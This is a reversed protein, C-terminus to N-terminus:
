ASKNVNWNGSGVYRYDAITNAAQSYGVGAGAGQVTGTSSYPYVTLPNAGRNVVTITDGLEITGYNNRTTGNADTYSSTVIDDGAPLSAGTSGAVTTFVNFDRPLPLATLLTSGLATLGTSSQPDFAGKIASVVNTPLGRIWAAVTM